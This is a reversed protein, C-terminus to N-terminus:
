KTFICVVVTCKASCYLSELHCETLITEKLILDLVQLLYIMQLNSSRLCARNFYM